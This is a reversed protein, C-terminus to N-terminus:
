NFGVNAIDELLDDIHLIQTRAVTAFRLRLRNAAPQRIDM